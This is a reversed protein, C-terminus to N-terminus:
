PLETLYYNEKLSFELCALYGGFSTWESWIWFGVNQLFGLILQFSLASVSSRKSSFLKVPGMGELKSCQLCSVVSLREELLKYPPMGRSSNEIDVSEKPKSKDLLLSVPSMGNSIPPNILRFESLRELLRNDPSIGEM